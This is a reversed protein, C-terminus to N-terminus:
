GQAGRYVLGLSSRFWGAGYRQAPHDGLAGTIGANWSPYFHEKNEQCCWATYNIESSVVSADQHFSLQKLSMAANYNGSLRSQQCATPLVWKNSTPRNLLIEPLGPCTENWLAVPLRLGLEHCPTAVLVGLWTTLPQAFLDQLSAGIWLHQSEWQSPPQEFSLSGLQFLIPQKNLCRNFTCLSRLLCWCWAELLVLVTHGARICGVNGSALFEEEEGCCM